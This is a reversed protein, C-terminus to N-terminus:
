RIPPLPKAKTPATPTVPDPNQLLLNNRPLQPFSATKPTSPRRLNWLALLLTVLLLAAALM